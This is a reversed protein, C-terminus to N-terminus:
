HTKLYVELLRDAEKQVEDDFDDKYKKDLEALKTINETAQEFTDKIIKKRTQPNVKFLANIKPPQLSETESVKGNGDCLEKSLSMDSKLLQVMQLEQLNNERPQTTHTQDNISEDKKIETDQGLQSKRIREWILDQDGLGLDPDSIETNAYQTEKHITDFLEDDLGDNKICGNSMILEGTLSNNETQLNKLQTLRKKQLKAIKHTHVNALEMHYEIRDDFIKNLKEIRNM